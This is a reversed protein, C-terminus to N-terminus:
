SIRIYYHVIVYHLAGAMRGRFIEQTWIYTYGMRGKEIHPTGRIVLLYLHKGGM